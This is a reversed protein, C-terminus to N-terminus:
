LVGLCTSIHGNDAFTSAPVIRAIIQHHMPLGCFVGSPIVGTCPWKTPRGDYPLTDLKVWAVFAAMCSRAQV